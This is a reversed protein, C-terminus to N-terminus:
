NQTTLQGGNLTLKTTALREVEESHHSVYVIPIEMDDRIREFYPIIELKRALDLSSLPEDALIYEPKSLLARGIAVRQREGGSLKAPRRELLHELGLLSIIQSLTAPDAPLKQFWRSVKLNQMVTLHPFLRADQYIYGVRRRETPVNVQDRSSFLVRHNIELHGTTPTITGALANILTTKGAGSPGCIATLGPPADFCARLTFDPFQHSLDVKLTMIGGGRTRGAAVAM